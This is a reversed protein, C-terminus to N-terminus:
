RVALTAKQKSEIGNVVLKVPQQGPPTAADLTINFQTLAAIQGPSTGAYDVTLGVDGVFIRVEAALPLAEQAM